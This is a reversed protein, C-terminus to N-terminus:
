QQNSSKTEHEESQEECKSIKNEMFNNIQKYIVREFVKSIDLLLSVSRYNAKQSLNLKKYVEIVESQKLEDPFISKKSPHDVINTLYKLHVEVPQKLISPPIAGYISSKKSNSKLAVKKVKDMSVMKFNFMDEQLVKSCGKKIKCVSINGGFHKTIKDFDNTKSVTSPKLDVNKTINVFYNNVM